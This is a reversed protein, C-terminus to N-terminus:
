WAAGPVAFLAVDIGFAILALGVIFTVQEIITWDLPRHTTRRRHRM